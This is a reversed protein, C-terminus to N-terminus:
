ETGVFAAAARRVIELLYAVCWAAGLAPAFMRRFASGHPMAAASRNATAQRQLLAHCRSRLRRAHRRSVDCTTLSALAALTDNSPGDDVSM